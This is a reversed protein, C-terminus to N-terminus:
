AAAQIAITARSVTGGAGDRNKAKAPLTLSDRRNLKRRSKRNLRFRLTKAEGAAITYRRAKAGKLKARGTCASLDTGPWEPPCALKIRVVGRRGVRKTGGARFIAARARAPGAPPLPDQVAGRSYQDPESLASGFGYDVDEREDNVRPADGPAEIKQDTIAGLVRTYLEHEWNAEGAPILGPDQGTRVIVLDQSPFLSV